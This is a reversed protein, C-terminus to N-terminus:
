SWWAVIAFNLRPLFRPPLSRFGFQMDDGPQGGIALRLILVFFMCVPTTM